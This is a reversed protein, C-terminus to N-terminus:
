KKRTFFYVLGMATLSVFLLIVKGWATPQQNKPGLENQQKNLSNEQIFQQLGFSKNLFLKEDEFTRGAAFQYIDQTADMFKKRSHDCLTVKLFDFKEYKAYVLWQEGKAFSMLCESACDFNLPVHKVVNGKYLETITFYAIAKGKPDCASVSDVSGYFLVDYGQANTLSVPALPPCECAFSLCATLLFYSLLLKKM